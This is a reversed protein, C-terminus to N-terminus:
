PRPQQPHRSPGVRVRPPVVEAVRGDPPIALRQPRQRVLGKPIAAGRDILQRRLHQRRQAHEQAFPSLRHRQPTRRLATIGIVEAQVNVQANCQVVRLLKLLRHAIVPRRHRQAGVGGDSM